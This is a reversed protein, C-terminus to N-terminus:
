FWQFSLRVYERYCTNIHSMQSHLTQLRTGMRLHLLSITVEGTGLFVEIWIRLLLLMHKSKAQM